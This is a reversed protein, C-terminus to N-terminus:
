REHAQEGLYQKLSVWHDLRELFYYLASDIAAHHHHKWALVHDAHLRPRAWIIREFEAREATYAASRAESLAQCVTSPTLNNM